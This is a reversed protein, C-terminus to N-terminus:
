HPTINPKRDVWNYDTRSRNMKAKLSEIHGKLQIDKTKTGTYLNFAEKFTLFELYKISNLPAKTFM